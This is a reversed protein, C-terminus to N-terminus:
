QGGADRQLQAVRGQWGGQELQRRQQRRGGQRWHQLLQAVTRRAGGQRESCRDRWDLLVGRM